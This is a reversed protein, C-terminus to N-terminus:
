RVVYTSRFYLVIQDSSKRLYFFHSILSLEFYKRMTLDPEIRTYRVKWTKMINTM